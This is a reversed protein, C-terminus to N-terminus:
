SQKTVCFALPVNDCGLSLGFEVDLSPKGKLDKFTTGHNFTGGCEYGHTTTEIEQGM